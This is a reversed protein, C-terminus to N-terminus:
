EVIDFGAALSVAQQITSMWGTNCDECVVRMKRSRLDGGHTKVTQEERDAYKRIQASTHNVMDKPIYKKLWDAWIHEGSLKTCHKPGDWFICKRQSKAM